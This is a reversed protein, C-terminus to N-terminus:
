IYPANSVLRSLCEYKQWTNVVSLEILTIITKVVNIHWRHTTTIMHYNSKCSDTCDTGIMVLTTLEFRTKTRPVFKFITFLLACWITGWTLCWEINLPEINRYRIYRANSVLRSLCEYKQWTKVHLKVCDWLLVRVFFFEGTFRFKVPVKNCLNQRTM